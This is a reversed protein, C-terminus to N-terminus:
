KVVLSQNSAMLFLRAVCKLKKYKLFSHAKNDYLLIMDILEIIIEGWSKLGVVM